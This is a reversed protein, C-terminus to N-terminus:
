LCWVDLCKLGAPNEGFIALVVVLLFILLVLMLIGQAKKMVGGGWRGTPSCLYKRSSVTRISKARSGGQEASEAGNPTQAAGRDFCLYQVHADKEKRWDIRTGFCVPCRTHIVHNVSVNGDQCNSCTVATWREGTLDNMIYDGVKARYGVYLRAM